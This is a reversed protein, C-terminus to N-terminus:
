EEEGDIADVINEAFGLVAGAMGVAAKKVDDILDETKEAISSEEAAEEISEKVDEMKEKVDELVDGVKEAVNDKVEVVKEVIDSAKEKTSDKVDAAKGKIEAAANELQDSMDELDEKKEEIQAAIKEKAAAKAKEVEKKREIEDLKQQEKVMKNELMTKTKNMDDLKEQKSRIREQIVQVKAQRLQMELQGDANNIRKDQFELDNKDRKISKEMKDIANLLGDYRRKVRDFGTSPQDGKDGYRLEKVTKFAKDIRNWVTNNDSRTMPEERLRSQLTKLQSFLPKLGLKKDLKEEIDALEELFKNKIESSKTNFEADKTKRLEKLREFLKNTRDKLENAHGRFLSRDHVQGQVKDWFNKMENWVQSSYESLDNIKDELDSLESEYMTYLKSSLVIFHWEAQARTIIDTREVKINDPLIQESMKLPRKEEEYGTPFAVEEGNRWKDMMTQYFEETAIEMPFKYIVVENAEELLELGLLLKEDKENEGWLVIKRKMLVNIKQSWTM